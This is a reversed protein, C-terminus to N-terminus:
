QALINVSSTQEPGSLSSNCIALMDFALSFVYGHDGEHLKYLNLGM